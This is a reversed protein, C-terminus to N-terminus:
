RRIFTKSTVSGARASTWTVTVLIQKLNDLPAAMDTVQYFRQWQGNTGLAETAIGPPHRGATLSADTWPLTRLEELKDQAHFNATSRMRDTLQGRSAAPFLQGIAMIGISLVVLAIMLEALSAGLESRTNPDIRSDRNM